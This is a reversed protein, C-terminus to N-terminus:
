LQLLGVSSVVPPVAFPMLILVNMVADLKPYYYAIVFMAPLVLLLSFLLAGVCILLSHGLATLFRPDSWLQTLWKLTFGQPLITDSWESSIGYLLTALLPAALVILLLWVILRHYLKEVRSM